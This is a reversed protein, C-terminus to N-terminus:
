VLGRRAAEAAAATRTPQRLKTRINAVHRHVTHPSLVLAEGIQNDSLGAAVHRLVERERQSLDGEGRPPSAQPRDAGLFALATELVAGAHGRWPVHVRGELPVFRADPALAALRRGLEFPIARDGRRHLVLVPARLRAVADRVDLAYILELLRAAVEPSASARQWREFDRREGPQADPLLVDTLLRSGVGWHARVAAIMLAKVDDAAVADGHAYAGYFVIRRVRRPYRDAYAAALCGGCSIGVMSMADIGLADVVAEVMALEGALTAEPPARDSLGTGLRDYRVVTHQEALAEVFARFPGHRWDHELNSVWWSPLVLAPGRGATAFALRGGDVATFAIRQEM